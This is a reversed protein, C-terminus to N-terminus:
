FIKGNKTTNNSKATSSYSNNYIRSVLGMAFLLNVFKKNWETPQKKLKKAIDKPM